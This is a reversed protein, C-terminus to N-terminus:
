DRGHCKREEKRLKGGQCKVCDLRNYIKSVQKNKSEEVLSYNRLSYPNQVTKNVTIALAQTTSPVCDNEFMQQILSFLFLRTTEM